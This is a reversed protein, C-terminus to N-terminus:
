LDAGGHQALHLFHCRVDVQVPKSGGVRIFKGTTLVRTLKSQLEHPLDSIEELYLTGGHAEELAGVKRQTTGDAETGFLQFELDEMAFQISSFIM